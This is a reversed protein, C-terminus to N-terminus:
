AQTERIRSASNNEPSSAREFFLISEDGAINRVKMRLPKKKSQIKGDWFEKTKKGERIVFGNKDIKIESDAHWQGKNATCDLSVLEILELGDDSIDIPKFKTKKKPKEEAESEDYEEGNESDFLTSKESLGKKQNYEDIKQQLRDSIFRTIEIEHGAKTKRQEYKIDDNLVVEDLVQKLDRLEVTIDTPNQDKIFKDLAKRDDIDIYYVIAQKVGDPLDPLAQRLVKNMLTIDLVKTSHDLLNPLFVPVMGLKSDQIAGEWFKDLSDENKLGTVLAKLKDMTQAPNRFLSVGDRIALVEFAAGAEILSDRSTQFSNIGIDVTIFKLGHDHAARATTGSGGFFDAVVMGTEAALDFIRGVLDEPKQTPYDLWEQENAPQLCRIRWVDDITREESIYTEAKGDEGIVNQIQGAVKTYKLKKVPKDRKEKLPHHIHQGATLSYRLIVDHARPLLQKRSDHLKNYYYWIIENVFNDEGFVEDMLVKIYHGINWDSHVFITARPSMVAKIGILNEYMWSLYDEKSWIDGYMTEEFARLEELDIPEAKKIKARVTEEHEAIEHRKEPHRRLYIRKAYNAGSAFPPDIYVLDVEINNNKLYGCASLCEGHILLNGSPKGITELTEVEYLPLGRRIRDYIKENDHYRLIRRTRTINALIAQGEVTNPVYPIYKVPM